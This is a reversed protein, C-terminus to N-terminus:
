PLWDTLVSVFDDPRELPVTHGAGEVIALTSGTLDAHLRQALAVFKVDLAGAVILVPMALEGLRAWLPEQTGTGARRLSSALGAATNSRRAELGAADTPLTAFLPLSLWHDLFADVGDREIRTALAEDSERRTAREHADDIGATGSVLVLGRVIDPHALAAHLAIRAGMSYGVYIGHGGEGIVHDAAGWLDVDVTAADGHGPADVARTELRLPLRALVPAWSAATQTFGHVFVLRDTV